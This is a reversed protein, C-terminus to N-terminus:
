NTTNSQVDKERLHRTAFELTKLVEQRKDEPPIKEIVNINTNNVKINNNVPTKDIPVLRDFIAKALVDSTLSRKIIAEIYNFTLYERKDKKKAEVRIQIEVAKISKILDSITYASKGRKNNGRRLNALQKPTGNPM